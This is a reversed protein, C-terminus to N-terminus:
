STVIGAILSSMAVGGFAIATGEPTVTLEPVQTTAMGAVAVVTCGLILATLGTIVSPRQLGTPVASNMFRTM